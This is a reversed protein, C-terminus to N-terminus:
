RPRLIGAVRKLAEVFKDAEDLTNYVAFSARVTGPIGFRQMLPQACHHGTRVAVGLGDLLMGVDYPHEDGILFSLVASKGPATGFIRVEPIEEIIRATAHNLLQVEHQEIEEIGLSSIFDLASHFATIGVFDPTVAEFKFPLEAFTTGEFSVHAIM